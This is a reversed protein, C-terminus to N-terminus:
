SVVTPIGLPRKEKSGPKPILVRRIAQAQYTGERLEQHLREIEEDLRDGFCKITMHDVGASGKNRAVKRYAAYLNRKSYVKDILSFWCAGKLGTKLANLMRDTWVAREVWQWRCQAEGAQKTKISV